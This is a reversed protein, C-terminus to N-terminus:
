LWVGNKIYYILPYASLLLVLLTNFVLSIKTDRQMQEKKADIFAVIVGYFTGLFLFIYIFYGVYYYDKQLFCFPCHHTPLQYIYTGFFVIIAIISIIIFFLNAISFLYKNKLLAFLMILVYTGYFLFLLMGTDISFINSIYSSATSSYITGCCSVMKDIDISNFMVGELVLEGMLLFFAIIYIGFKLKTYPQEENKMDVSNLMLWYAFVYLNIVKLILLYTGYPTADVVGAGCMAGTIVKSIKDLTFIFFLFLPVKIAFIYKIITASLYSQKELKYQSQSVSKINWHLFIKVSLVFAITAFFAFITNLIFIALVEPTLIM